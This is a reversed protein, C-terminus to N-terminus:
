KKGKIPAPQAYKNFDRQSRAVIRDRVSQDEMDLGMLAGLELQDSNLKTTKTRSRSGNYGGSMTDEDVVPRRSKAKLGQNEAAERVAIKYSMPSSKDEDPLANWIQLAEKTLPHSADSLEPYDNQLASLTNIRKSEAQNYQGVAQLAEQKAQEKFRELVAKPNSYLETEIDAEVQAKAEPKAKLAQISAMLESQQKAFTSKLDSIEAKLADNNSAAQGNSEQESM